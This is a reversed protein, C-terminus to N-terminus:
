KGVYLATREHGVPLHLGSGEVSRPSLCCPVGLGAASRHLVGGCNQTGDESGYPRNGEWSQDFSGEKRAHDGM